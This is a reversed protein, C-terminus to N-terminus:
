RVGSPGPSSRGNKKKLVDIIQQATVNYVTPNNHAPVKGNLHEAEPM